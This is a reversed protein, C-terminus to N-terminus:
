RRTGSCPRDDDVNCRDGFPNLLEANELARWYKQDAVDRLKSVTKELRAKCKDRSLPDYITWGMNCSLINMYSLSIAEM